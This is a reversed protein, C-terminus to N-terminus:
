LCLLWGCCCKPMSAMSQVVQVTDGVEVLAYVVVRHQGDRSLTMTNKITALWADEVAGEAWLVNATRVGTERADLRVLFHWVDESGMGTFGAGEDLGQHELVRVLGSDFGDGFSAHPAPMWTETRPHEAAQLLFVKEPGINPPSSQNLVKTGETAFAGDSFVTAVYRGTAPDPDAFLFEDKYYDRGDVKESRYLPRAPAEMTRMVSVAGELDMHRYGTLGYSAGCTSPPPEPTCTLWENTGGWSYYSQWLGGTTVAHATSSLRGNYRCPPNTKM